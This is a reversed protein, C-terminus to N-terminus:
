NKSNFFISSSFTNFLTLVALLSSVVGLSIDLVVEPYFFDLVAIWIWYSTCGLGLVLILKNM